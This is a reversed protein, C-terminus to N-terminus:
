EKLYSHTTTISNVAAISLLAEITSEAGANKNIKNKSLIGDYCRGNKLNYM